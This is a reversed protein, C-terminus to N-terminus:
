FQIQLFYLTRKWGLLVIEADATHININITKYAGELIGNKFELCNGYFIYDSNWSEEYGEIDNIQPFKGNESLHILLIDKQKM